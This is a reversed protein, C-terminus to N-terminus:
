MKEEQVTRIDKRVRRENLHVGKRDRTPFFFFLCSFLLFLIFCSFYFLSSYSLIFWCFPFFFALFVLFVNLSQVVHESVPIGYFMFSSAMIYM